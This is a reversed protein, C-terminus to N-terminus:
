GISSSWNIEEGEQNGLGLNSSRVRVTVSKLVCIDLICPRGITRGNHETDRVTIIVNTKQKLYSFKLFIRLKGRIPM